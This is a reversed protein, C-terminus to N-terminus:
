KEESFEVGSWVFTDGGFNVRRKGTRDTEKGKPLSVGGGWSQAQGGGGKWTCERRTPIWGGERMQMKGLLKYVDKPKKMEINGQGLDGELLHRTGEKESAECRLAVGWPGHQVRVKGFGSFGGNDPWGHDAEASAIASGANGKWSEGHGQGTDAMREKRFGVSGATERVGEGRHQSKNRQSKRGLTRQQCRKKQKGLVHWDECPEQHGWGCVHSWHGCVTHASSAGCKRCSVDSSWEPKRSKSEQPVETRSKIMRGGDRSTQFLRRCAGRAQSLAGVLIDEGPITGLWLVAM